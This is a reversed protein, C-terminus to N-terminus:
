PGTDVERGLRTLLMDFVASHISRAFKLGVKQGVIWRVQAPLAEIGDFKIWLQEHLEPREIFEAKCGDPSLDYIDVRFNLKGSRRMTVDGEVSVREHLRPQIAPIQDAPEAAFCLGARDGDVWRVIAETKGRREVSLNLREGAVLKGACIVGCGDYSLDVVTMEAVSGDDRAGHASLTMPRRERRQLPVDGADSFPQAPQGITLL